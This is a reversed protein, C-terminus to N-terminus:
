FRKDGFLTVFNDEIEKSYDISVIEFPRSAKKPPKSKEGNHFFLLVNKINDESLSKTCHGRIRELILKLNRALLRNTCPITKGFKRQFYPQKEEVFSEWNDFYKKDWNTLYWLFIEHRLEQQRGLRIEENDNEDLNDWKSEVLYVNKSSVIIADFEGFVAKSHRSHRGFSPRYFVLCDSPATGDNFRALITSLRGKLAWLTLSDEGYGVIKAMKAM